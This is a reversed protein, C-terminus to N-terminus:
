ARSAKGWAVAQVLPLQEELAILQERWYELSGFASFVKKFAPDEWRRAIWANYHIIRLSRLAEILELENRNFRSMEEYGCILLERRRLSEEDRGPVLLWLDQVCPAAAMDDFDVFTCQEGDWLLNGCHLDGHVRQTPVGKEIEACLQSLKESVSFFREAMSEPVFSHSRLFEVSAFGFTEANLCRRAELPRRKGVGHMRAILRGVRQLQTNSLEDLNRGGSRPFVAAVIDTGPVQRISSGTDPFNLAPVVPVMERDLEKIFEHEELIQEKSWRGPRYFKLVRFSDFRSKPDACEIEVQIVRNEMSNLALIRGTARVETTEATELIREPTLTYFSDQSM